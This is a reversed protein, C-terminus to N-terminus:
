GCRIWASGHFPVTPVPHGSTSCRLRLGRPPPLPSGAQHLAPSHHTSETPRAQAPVASAATGTFCNHRPRERGHFAPLVSPGEALFWGFSGPSDYPDFVQWGQTAERMIEAIFESISRTKADTALDTTDGCSHFEHFCHDDQSLKGESYLFVEPVRVQGAIFLGDPSLAQQLAEAFVRSALKEPNSFIVRSWKKYNGGDRYLYIFEINDM